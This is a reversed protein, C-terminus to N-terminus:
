WSRPGDPGASRAALSGKRALSMPAGAVAPGLVDDRPEGYPGERRPDLAAREGVTVVDHPMGLSVMDLTPHRTSQSLQIGVNKQAGRLV